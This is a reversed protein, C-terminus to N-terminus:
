IRAGWPEAKSAFRGDIARPVTGNSSRGKMDAGASEQGGAGIM